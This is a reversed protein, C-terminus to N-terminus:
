YILVGEWDSKIAKGCYVEAKEIWLIWLEESLWKIGKSIKGRNWWMMMDLLRVWELGLM